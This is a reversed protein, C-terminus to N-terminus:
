FGKLFMFTNFSFCVSACITNEKLRRIISYVNNNIGKSRRMRNLEMAVVLYM